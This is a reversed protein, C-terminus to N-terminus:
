RPLSGGSFPMTEPRYHRELESAYRAGIKGANDRLWIRLSTSGTPPQKSVLLNAMLGSIEDKTLVVDHVLRGLFWSAFRVFSPSVHVIRSRSGITSRILRVLDEYEYTEPGVADMMLNERSHGAEVALAALDEVFIPQLGYNGAGPIAFVPFRRLLWAINNVLIDEKGFVVAPRLIAHSLSSSRILEEIEAKGRFYPLSSDSSPNTISIHVIRKVGAEEAAHILVSTNEVAREHNVAGHAFRVWYTNYLIEAGVMNRALEEPNRFDLPAAEFPATGRPHNTLTRVREGLALLREAIYRGSYGHAGTVVNLPESPAM